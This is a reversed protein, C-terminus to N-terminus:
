GEPLPTLTVSPTVEFEGEQYAQYSQYGEWAHLETTQLLLDMEDPTLYLVGIIESSATLEGTESGDVYVYVVMPTDPYVLSIVAQDATFESGILYTPDDHAEILEGLSMTPATRLLVLTVVEGDQSAIQCCVQNDGQRWAAQVASSSEDTQTQVDRFESDDEIITLADNWRTEGPTIGRFCPPGCPEGDILSEDQLLTDDLLNPPPACAAVILVLLPLVLLLLRHKM